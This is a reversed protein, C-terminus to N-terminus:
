WGATSTSAWTRKRSTSRRRVPRSEMPQDGQQVDPPFSKWASSPALHSVSGSRHARAGAQDAPYAPNAPLLSNLRSFFVEPRCPSYRGPCPRRRHRHGAAVPVEAPPTCDSGWTALPVLRLRDQLRMCPRMTARARLYVPPRRHDGPEDADAAGDIGRPCREQGTRGSSPSTAAAGGLTAHRGPVHPVNNWADILQMLWYRDGMEPVSLVLPGSALDLSGLSYLTDVNLGVVVQDAADPLERFHAFQNIPANAGQPRTVQTTTDVQLAIYVLACVSSM